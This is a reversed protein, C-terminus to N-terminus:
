ILCKKDTKFGNKSFTRCKKDNKKPQAENKTGFDNLDKAIKVGREAPDNTVQISKLLSVADQYVPLDNWISPDKSLLNDIDSLFAKLAENKTANVLELNSM